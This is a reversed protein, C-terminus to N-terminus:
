IGQLDTYSFDFNRQVYKLQYQKSNLTNESKFELLVDSIEKEERTMTDLLNLQHKNHYLVNTNIFPFREKNLKIYYKEFEFDQSLFSEDKRFRSTMTKPSHKKFELLITSVKQEDETITNSLNILFDDIEQTNEAALRDVFEYDYGICIDFNGKSYFYDDMKDAMFLEFTPYNSINEINHNIFTIGIEECKVVEIKFNLLKITEAFDKLETILYDLNSM